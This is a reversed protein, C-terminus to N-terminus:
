DVEQTFTVPQRRYAKVKRNHAIGPLWTPSNKIIKLAIKDFAEHFPMSVEADTVKGNEDIVFSVGVTVAATTTFQLRPPWYLNKELYKEM